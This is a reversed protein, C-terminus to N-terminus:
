IIWYQLQLSQEACGDYMNPQINSYPTHMWQIDYAHFNPYPSAYVNSSISLFFLCFRSAIHTESGHPSYLGLGLTNFWTSENLITSLWQFLPKNPTISFLVYFDSCVNWSHNAKEISSTSQYIIFEKRDGHISAVRSKTNGTNEIQSCTM